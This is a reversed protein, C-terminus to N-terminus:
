FYNSKRRVIFIILLIVYILIVVWPIYDAVRYLLPQTPVAPCNGECVSKAMKALFYFGYALIISVAGWIIAKVKFKM